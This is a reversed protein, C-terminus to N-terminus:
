AKNYKEVRILKGMRHFAVIYHQDKQTGGIEHQM